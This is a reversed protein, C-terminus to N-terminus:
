WHNAELNAVRCACIVSRCAAGKSSSAASVSFSAALGRGSCCVFASEEKSCGFFFVFTHHFVAAKANGRKQLNRITMTILNKVSRTTNGRNISYRNALNVLRFIRPNKRDLVPLSPPFM